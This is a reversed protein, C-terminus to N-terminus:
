SISNRLASQVVSKTSAATTTPHINNIGYKFFLVIDKVFIEAAHIIGETKVSGYRHNTSGAKKVCNRVRDIHPSIPMKTVSASIIFIM